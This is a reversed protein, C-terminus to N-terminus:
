PRENSCIKSWTRIHLWTTLWITFFPNAQFHVHRMDNSRGQSVSESFIYFWLIKVVEHGTSHDYTTLFSWFRFVQKLISMDYVM